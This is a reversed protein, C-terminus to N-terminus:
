SATLAPVPTNNEATEVWNLLLVVVPYRKPLEKRMLRRLESEITSQIGDREIGKKTTRERLIRGILDSV